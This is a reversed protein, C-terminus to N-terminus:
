LSFLLARCAPPTQLTGKKEVRTVLAMVMTKIEDKLRGASDKPDMRVVAALSLAKMMEPLSVVACIEHIDHTLVAEVNLGTMERALPSTKDLKRVGTRAADLLVAELQRRLPTMM